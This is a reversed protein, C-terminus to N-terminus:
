SSSDEAEGVGVELPVSADDDDELEDDPLALEDLLLPPVSAPGHACHMAPPKVPHPAVSVLQM